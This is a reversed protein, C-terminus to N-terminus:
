AVSFSPVEAILSRAAADVVGPDKDLLVDVTASGASATGGAALASAIRRRLGPAVTSMLDQLARTGKPGLRAVAQAALEAEPGGEQIRGLLQPLAQDIKLQGIAALVEFRLNQDPDSLAKCLVRVIQADRVGIAGLVKAAAYRLEAPHDPELLRLLKKGTADLMPPM